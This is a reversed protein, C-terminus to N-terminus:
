CFTRPVLDTDVVDHEFAVVRVRVAVPRV